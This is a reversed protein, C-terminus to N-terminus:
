FAAGITAMINNGILSNPVYAFDISSIFKATYAFGAGISFKNTDYGSIKYGVRLKFMKYLTYQLGSQLKMKSGNADYYTDLLIDLDKIGKYDVGTGILLPLPSSEKEFASSGFIFKNLVSFGVALNEKKSSLSTKPLGPIAPLSFGYLFGLDMSFANASSDDLTSNLYNVNLGLKAKQFKMAYGVSVAMDNANLSKVEDGALDTEPFNKHYLGRFKLGVVREAGQSTTPLPVAAGASIYNMEYLWKIYTASFQGLQLDKSNVLGAPNYKMANVGDANAIMAEGVGFAVASDGIKLFDFGTAGTGYISQPLINIAFILIFIFYLIKKM